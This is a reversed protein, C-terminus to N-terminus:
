NALVGPTAVVDGGLDRGTRFARMRVGSRSEFRNRGHTVGHLQLYYEDRVGAGREIV